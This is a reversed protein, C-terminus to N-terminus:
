PGRRGLRHDGLRGAAGLCHGAPPPPDRGRQRSDHRGAGSGGARSEGRGAGRHRVGVGCAAARGPQGAARDADRRRVGEPIGVLLGCRVRDLPDARCGLGDRAAVVHAAHGSLGPAGGFAGAARRRQGACVAVRHRGDLHRLGRLAVAHRGAATQAARVAARGLRHVGARRPDRARRGVAARGARGSPVGARFAGRRRDVARATRPSGDRRRGGGCGQGM